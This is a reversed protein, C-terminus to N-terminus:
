EKNQIYAATRFALASITLSPNVSVPGPSVSGEIVYPDEYVKDKDEDNFVRGILDDYFPDMDYGRVIIGEPPNNSSDRIRGSITYAM